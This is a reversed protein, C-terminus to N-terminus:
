WHTSRTRRYRDSQFNVGLTLEVVPKEKFYPTKNKFGYYGGLYFHPYKYEAFISIKGSGRYSAGLCFRDLYLKVIPDINETIKDFTSDTASILVSPELVINMSKSLLIKIGTTFFYERSVPVNYIGVPDPKWPSGLLNVGSIGAFFSTGYYYVGLDINTYFTNRESNVIGASDTSITNHSEKVSIGFSLFSLEKTNMPIQYSAAASVGYKSSLGDADNFISGGLGFNTFKTIDPSSFYGDHTKSIRTNGSLLQAHSSGKFSANVGVSLFDKSGVMAPNYIYPVFVWYSDTNLPTQQGYTIDSLLLLIAVLAKLVTKRNLTLDM